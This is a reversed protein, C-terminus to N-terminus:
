RAFDTPASFHSAGPWTFAHSGLRCQTEKVIPANAMKPDIM